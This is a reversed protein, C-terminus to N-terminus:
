AVSAITMKALVEAEPINPTVVAGPPHLTWRVAHVAEEDLLHDGSKAVM